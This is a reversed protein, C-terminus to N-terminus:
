FDCFCVEADLNSYYFLYAHKDQRTYCGQDVNSFYILFNKTYYLHDNNCDASNFLNNERKQNKRKEM